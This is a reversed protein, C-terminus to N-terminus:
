AFDIQYLNQQCHRCTFKFVSPDGGAQYASHIAEWTESTINNGEIFAKGAEPTLSQLEELKAHAHFECADNCHIAWSEQQWGLFGPTRNCVEDIIAPDIGAAALPHSDTFTGDYKRSAEGSAICAPCIKKPSKSSYFAGTYVFGNAKGCCDCRVRSEAISGTGIPDPHYTFGPLEFPAANRKGFGISRRIM